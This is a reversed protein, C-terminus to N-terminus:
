DGVYIQWDGGEPRRMSVSGSTGFSKGGRYTGYIMVPVEVYDFGNARVPQSPTGVTARYREYAKFNEAFRERDERNGSRMSWAADYDGAEIRTYYRRLFEAADEGSENAPAPPTDDRPPVAEPTAAPEMRNVPASPSDTEGGCAALLLVLPLLAARM